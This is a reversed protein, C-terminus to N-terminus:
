KATRQAKLRRLASLAFDVHKGTRLEDSFISHIKGEPDILFTVRHAYRILPWLVDYARAIQGDADAILPFTTKVADALKCQSALDNASVGVVEAGLEKLESSADRFQEAERKCPPAASHTYFYLVLYRGRFDDLSVKRSGPTAEASFQPAESGIKIM